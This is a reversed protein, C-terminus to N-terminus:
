CMSESDRLMWPVCESNPTGEQIASALWRISTRTLQICAMTTDSLDQIQTHTHSYRKWRGTRETSHHQMTFKRVQTTRMDSGAAGPFSTATRSSPLRSTITTRSPKAATSRGQVCLMLRRFYEGTAPCRHIGLQRTLIGLM